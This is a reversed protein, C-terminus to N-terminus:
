LSPACLAETSDDEDNVAPRTLLIQFSVKALFPLRIALLDRLQDVLLRMADITFVQQGPLPRLRLERTWAAGRPRLETVAAGTLCPSGDAQLLPGVRVVVKADVARLREWYCPRAATRNRLLDTASGGVVAHARAAVGVEFRCAAEEVCLKDVLVLCCPTVSSLKARAWSAPIGIHPHHSAACPAQQLHGQSTWDAELFAM